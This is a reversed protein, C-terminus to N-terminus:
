RLFFEGVYEDSTMGTLLFVVQEYRDVTEEILSQPYRHGHVRAIADPTLPTKPGVGLHEQVYDRIPQKDFSPPKAGTACAAEIDSALLYRSSDPMLREDILVLRKRCDTGVEFKTDAIVINRKMAISAASDYVSHTFRESKDGFQIEFEDLTM